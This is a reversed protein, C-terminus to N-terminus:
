VAMPLWTVSGYAAVDCQWLCGWAYAPWVAYAAVCKMPAVGCHMLAVVGHWLRGCQWLSCLRGRQWLRGCLLPPLAAMPPWV